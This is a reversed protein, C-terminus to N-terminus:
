DQPDRRTFVLRESYPAGFNRFFTRRVPPLFYIGIPRSPRNAGGRGAKRGPIEDCGRCHDRFFEAAVPRPLQFDVHTSHRAGTYVSPRRFLPTVRIRASTELQKEYRGSESRIALCIIRAGRGAAAAMAGSRISGSIRRM